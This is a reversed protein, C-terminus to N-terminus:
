KDVIQKWERRVRVARKKTDNELSQAGSQAGGHKAAMQERGSLYELYIETTKISTHGLHKSLSYIDWGMRLSRIAFGHRLDHIRFRRFERGQDAERIMLLRVAQSFNSSFNRYQDGRENTFLPGTRSLSRLVAGADGAPTRWDITRPRNTKTKRLAIQQRDWLVDEGTLTVAENERMGTAHLLRLVAAIGPPVSLLVAAVATEQPPDIPDRRERIIGRDYTAVPNAPVWGWATCAALMRSLATLDRRITANTVLNARSSVYEGITQATIQDVRLSGFVAELQAISSLYRTAVAPKVANPLVETAWRVVAAKFTPTDPSGLSARELKLRWARLRRAAERADPTRLSARYERGAIKLRGWYTTGRLYLNTPM